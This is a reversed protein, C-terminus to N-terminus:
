PAGSRRAYRVLALWSASLRPRLAGSAFLQREMRRRPVDHWLIERMHSSRSRSTCVTAAYRKLVVPRAETHLRDVLTTM